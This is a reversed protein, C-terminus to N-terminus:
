LNRTYDGYLFMDCEENRRNLLGKMVKGGGKSWATFNERLSEDRVGSCIRKYLNSQYLLGGVGCNYAFSCLADFEHQKLSVGKSDLDSKIKAAMSNIEEMLWATAEEKSCYNRAVKDKAITGYGITMVGTGDNYAHDYFGEYSKVFDVLERSVYGNCSDNVWHGYSDIIYEKGEETITTNVAMSGDENLYYWYGDDSLWGTAMSGDSNLYYWKDNYSLWGTVMVGDENLYYWKDDLQLWGTVRKGNCDLYCWQVNIQNWGTEM